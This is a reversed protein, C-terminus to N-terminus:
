MKSKLFKKFRWNCIPRKAGIMMGVIGWLLVCCIFYFLNMDFNSLVCTCIVTFVLLGWSLANYKRRFSKGATYLNRLQEETTEIRNEQIFFAECKKIIALTTLWGLLLGLIMIQVSLLDPRAVQWDEMKRIAPYAFLGVMAGCGSMRRILDTDKKKKDLYVMGDDMNYFYSLQSTEEKYLLIYNVM